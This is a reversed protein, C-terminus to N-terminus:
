SKARQYEKQLVHSEHIADFYADLCAHARDRALGMQAADDADASAICFENLELQYISFARRASAFSSFLPQVSPM